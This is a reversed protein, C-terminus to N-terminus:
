RMAEVGNVIDMLETTIAEQRARNYKLTLRAIMETANNTASDMATMRAGHESATSELLARFMRVEVYRPLVWNLMYEESPEYIYETTSTEPDVPMPEVPLLRDFVVQQSLASRFENYVMYVLDIERNTYREIVDRAITQAEGYTVKGFLETKQGIIEADRRRFYDVAKKGVLYLPVAEYEAGKERLFREASRLVSANFSGCLGRDSTFVILCVRRPDRRELLPHAEEETRLALSSLVELMKDSYPRNQLIAEEARRFKAASVMKMAKTIQQTSRVSAIRNRIDKLNAM